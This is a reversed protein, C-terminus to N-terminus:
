SRRTALGLGAAIGHLRKDRAWLAAGTLRASALLHVEVYGIGRGFLAHREIFELAEAGTAVTAKPMGSLASLIEERKRLSGLAIEGIVFPHTLAIGADLLHELQKDGSRLHDIWVSTDVLIM